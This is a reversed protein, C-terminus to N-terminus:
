VRRAADTTVFERRCAVLHLALTGITLSRLWPHGLSESIRDAALMGIMAQPVNGENFQAVAGTTLALVELWLNNAARAREAGMRSYRVVKTNKAQYFTITGMAVYWNASLLEDNPKALRRLRVLERRGEGIHGKVVWYSWMGLALQLGLGADNKRAWELARRINSVEPDILALAHLIDPGFVSKGLEISFARFCRCHASGTSESEGCKILENSAFARVLNLMGYRGPAVISVLSAAVLRKLANRVASVDLKNAGCVEVAHQETFGGSFISLRRFVARADDTLLRYSRDILRGLRQEESNGFRMHEMDLILEPLGVCALSSAALEIALPIGDALQCVKVIGMATQENFLLKCGCRESTQVFLNVATYAHLEDWNAEEPGPIPLKPPIYIKEGEASLAQRTTTLIKVNPCSNVIATVVSAAGDLVTECGDLTLLLRQHGLFQRLHTVPDAEFTQRFVRGITSAVAAANRPEPVGEELYVFWVGDRFDDRLANCVLEALSSKGFGLPGVISTVRFDALYEILMTQESDRKLLHPSDRTVGISLSDVSLGARHANLDDLLRSLKRPVPIKLQRLTTSLRVAAESVLHFRHRRALVTLYESLVDEPDPVRLHVRPTSLKRVLLRILPNILKGARLSVSVHKLYSPSYTSWFETEVRNRWQVAWADKEGNAFSHALLPERMLSAARLFNECGQRSDQASRRLHRDFEVIDIFVGKPNIKLPDAHHPILSDGDPSLANRLEKLHGRLTSSNLQLKETIDSRLVQEEYHCCLFGLLRKQQDPLNIEKGDRLVQLAGFLRIELMPMRYLFGRGEARQTRKSPYCVPLRSDGAASRVEENVVLPLPLFAKPLTRSPQWFPAYMGM